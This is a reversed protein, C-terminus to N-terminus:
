IAGLGTLFAHPDRIEFAIARLGDRATMAEIRLAPIRSKAAKRAACIFRAAM